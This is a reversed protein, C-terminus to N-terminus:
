SRQGHEDEHWVLVDGTVGSRRLVEASSDGCHIHLVTM